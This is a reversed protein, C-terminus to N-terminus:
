AVDRWLGPQNTCAREGVFLEEHLKEGTRLGIFKFERAGLMRAVGVVSLPGTMEPVFTEGGQAVKASDLILRAADTPEIFYRTAEPHTITVPLGHQIQDKWLPVVSGSSGYVNGLRVTTYNHQRVIEEARRKTRGMVCTPRVAKDTSILILRPVSHCAAAQVLRNTGDVNVRWAPGPNEECIRVHKYAAAHFIVDFTYKLFLRDIDNHDSVDGLVPVFHPQGMMRDINYLALESSDFMIVTKPSEEQLKRCLVSGISGGAGTVLVTKDKFFSM